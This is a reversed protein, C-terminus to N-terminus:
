ECEHEGVCSLVFLCCNCSLKFLLFQFSILDYCIFSCHCINIITRIITNETDIQISISITVSHHQPTTAHHHFLPQLLPFTSHHLPPTTSHHQPPTTAHHLPPTIPNGGVMMFVVVVLVVVVVDVVAEWWSVGSAVPRAKCEDSGGGGRCVCNARTIPVLLPVM